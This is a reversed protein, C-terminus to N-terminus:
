PADGKEIASIFRRLDNKTSQIDHWLDGTENVRERSNFITFDTMKLKENVEKWLLPMSVTAGPKPRVSYPAAITQGRSNQLFDIYVKHNRQSKTRIVSTSKPLEQNVHRAIYEAFLRGTDYSYKGGVPIYIHLGTSGSTKCFCTVKYQDLFAKIHQAAEVVYKFDINEPDLDMVIFDPNDLRATRSLWPNIEICGLNAMFALTAENNCILYDVDKGTSEARLAISKIWVPSQELNLDKQYFAQGTIGNPFRHLSLPRDKLHPLIIEAMGLYYDILQGKTIKEKPWYLKQQNTLTVKKGNLTVIREKEAASATATAMTISKPTEAHVEGAAKDERLGLFVPQRLIGDGTWESFKVQCVLKPKVWTVPMVTKIKKSFPSASQKLPQLKKYLIGLMEENLGGGCNGIYKLEKDDYLGLVLAGLKKRSGRPETYGCILAEQENINKIKLWNDSRRGEEYISDARKAIIGEWQQKRAKRFFSKGKGQIHGSFQVTKDNLAAVIDQLLSKRELLTLEQLENGNLHLLDFVMYVLAGKGTSRFRQLSQFGAGKNKETVIIEGDLVVNHAINEVAAVIAPYDTNFNKENRSYLSVQHNQVSAIARYGDWKTEFIWENSDFPEDVLTALM